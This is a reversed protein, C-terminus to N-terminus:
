FRFPIGSPNVTVGSYGNNELMWGIIEELRDESRLTPGFTVNVLPLKGMPKGHFLWSLEVYPRINANGSRFRIREVPPDIAIIRWEHEEQFSKHKIMSPFFPSLKLQLDNDSGSRCIAELNKRISDPIDGYHVPVLMPFSQGLKPEPWCMHHKLDSYNFGLCYGGSNGAYSRWMSLLNGDECFCAVFHRRQHLIIKQEPMTSTLRRLEESMLNEAFAQESGDNLVRNYTARLNHSELLGQLGAFDTYHYLVGHTPAAPNYVDNLTNISDIFSDNIM